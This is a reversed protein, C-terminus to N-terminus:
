AIDVLVCEKEGRTMRMEIHRILDGIIEVRNFDADPIEVAAFHNEIATVQELPLLSHMTM